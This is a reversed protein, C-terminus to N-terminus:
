KKNMDNFFNNFVIAQTIILKNIDEKATHIKNTQKLM